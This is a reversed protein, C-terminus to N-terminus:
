RACFVSRAMICQYRHLGNDIRIQNISGARPCIGRVVRSLGSFSENIRRARFCSLHFSTGHAEVFTGGGLTIGCAEQSNVRGVGGPLLIEIPIPDERKGRAASERELPGDSPGLPDGVPPKCSGKKIHSHGYHTFDM